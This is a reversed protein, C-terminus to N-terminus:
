FIKTSIRACANTLNTTILFYQQHDTIPKLSIILTVSLTDVFTVFAMDIFTMLVTEICESSLFFNYFSNNHKALAKILLLIM